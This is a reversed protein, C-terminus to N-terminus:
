AAPALLPASKAPSPTHPAHRHPSEDSKGAAPQAPGSPPSPPASKKFAKRAVFQPRAKLWARVDATTAYNPFPKGEERALKRIAFIVYPSLGCAAALDGVKKYLVKSEHM